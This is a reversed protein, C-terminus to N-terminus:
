YRGATFRSDSTRRRYYVRGIIRETSRENCKVSRGYFTIPRKGGAYVVLQVKRERIAVVARSLIGLIATPEILQFASNVHPSITSNILALESSLPARSIWCGRGDRSMFQRRADVVGPNIIYYYRKERDRAWIRAWDAAPHCNCRPQCVLHLISSSQAIRLSHASRRSRRSTLLLRGAGVAPLLRISVCKFSARRFPHRSKM